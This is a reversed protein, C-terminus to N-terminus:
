ENLYRYFATLLASLFSTRSSSYGAMVAPYETTGTTDPFIVTHIGADDYHQFPCVDYIKEGVCNPQLESTDAFDDNCFKLYWEQLQNDDM